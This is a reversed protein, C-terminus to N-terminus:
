PQNLALEDQQSNRQPSRTDCGDGSMVELSSRAPNLSAAYFHV